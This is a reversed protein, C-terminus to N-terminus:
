GAAQASLLLSLASPQLSYPVTGPLQVLQGPVSAAPPRVTGALAPGVTGAVVVVTRDAVAVVATGGAVAGVPVVVVVVDAVGAVVVAVAGVAVDPAAVAVVAGVAVAGDHRVFASTGAARLPIGARLYGVRLTEFRLLTQPFLLRTQLLPLPFRRPTGPLSSLTRPTLTIWLM